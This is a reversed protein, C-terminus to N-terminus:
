PSNELCKLREFPQGRKRAMNAHRKSLLLNLKCSKTHSLTNNENFLSNKRYQSFNWKPTFITVKPLERKKLVREDPMTSNVSKYSFINRVNQASQFLASVKVKAWSIIKFSSPRMKTSILPFIFSTARLNNQPTYYEVYRNRKCLSDKFKWLSQATHYQMIFLKFDSSIYNYCFTDVNERLDSM